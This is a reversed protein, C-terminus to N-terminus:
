LCQIFQSSVVLTEPMSTLVVPYFQEAVTHTHARVHVYRLHTAQNIHQM